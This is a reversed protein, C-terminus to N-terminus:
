AGVRSRLADIMPNTTSRALLALMLAWARDAHGDNTRPTVYQVNGANSIIRQVSAIELRLKKASGAENIVYRSPPTTSTDLDARKKLQADTAPLRLLQGTMAAYLGTCMAEKTTPTFNIPEVRPRRHAVDIRESHKKKIREAPFSGLGTADICLRRLKYRAFARDVMAELGDSDTRKMVEIHVVYCIGKVRHLIVLCSLDAERGIDLGGYFEGEAPVDFGETALCSTIVDNPIYQLVNDLFSCNFMQAFLRPDGKAMAWCKAINVDYGQSIALEIPIEHPSWPLSAGEIMTTRRDPNTAIEWLDHFENGIGNPTSVVRIKHGLLAVPATADWVKTAHQQYAFEDLLVNGTYGRGGSSPLSKVRGGSAFVIEKTSKKRTKACESGLGQLIRTHRICKELVEDAEEQGVSIITSLEGKFAGWLVGLASSTYSMGIQRSKNSIAFDSTDFLWDRQFEFPFAELVWCRLADFEKPPLAAYQLIRPDEKKHLTVM